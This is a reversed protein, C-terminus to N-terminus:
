WGDVTMGLWGCVNGIMWLCGHVYRVVWLWGCGDVFVWVCGRGDGAKTM